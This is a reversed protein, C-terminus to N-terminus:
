YNLTLCDNWGLSHWKWFPTLVNVMKTDFLGFNQITRVMRNQEFKVLMHDLYKDFLAHLSNVSKINADAFIIYFDIKVTFKGDLSTGVVTALASISLRSDGGVSTQVVHWHFKFLITHDLTCSISSKWLFVPTKLAMSSLDNVGNQFISRHSFCNNLALNNIKLSGYQLTGFIVTTRCM